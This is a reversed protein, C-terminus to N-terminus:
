TDGRGKDVNGSDDPLLHVPTTPEQEKWSYRGDDRSRTLDTIWQGLQEETEAQRVPEFIPDTFPVAPLRAVAFGIMVARTIEPDRLDLEPTVQMDEWDEVKDILLDMENDEARTRQVGRDMLEKIRKLARQNEAESTIPFRPRM